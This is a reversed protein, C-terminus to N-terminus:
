DTFTLDRLRFVVVCTAFLALSWAAFLIAIEPFPTSRPMDGMTVFARGFPPLAPQVATLIRGTPGPIASPDGAVLYLMVLAAVVGAWRRTFLRSFPLTLLVATVLMLAITGVRAPAQSVAGHTMMMIPVAAISLWALDVAVIAVAALYRERGGVHVTSYLARANAADSAIIIGFRQLMGKSYRALQKGGEAGLGVRDLVDRCRASRGRLPLGRMSSLLKLLAYASHSRHYNPLEPMFGIRRYAREPSMGFVRVRGGSPRVFGSLIHLLTTKSAGNRGVLGVIGEAELELDVGCLATQQQYRKTVGSLSIM